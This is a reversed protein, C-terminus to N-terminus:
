AGPARPMRSALCIVWGGVAITPPGEISLWWVPMGISLDIAFLLVGMASFLYGWLVVFSRYREVDSSILLTMLSFAAYFMSLSRALYSVIPADPLRGLGAFSHIGEMWSFPLFIAPVAFLGTIGVVRLIVAILRTRNM